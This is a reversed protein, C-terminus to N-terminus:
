LKENCNRQPSVTKSMKGGSNTETGNKKGCFNIRVIILWTLMMYSDEIGVTISRRFQEISVPMNVGPSFGYM